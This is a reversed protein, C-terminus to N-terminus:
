RSRIERRERRRSRRRRSRSSRRQRSTKSSSPSRRRGAARRSPITQPLLYACFALAVLQARRDGEAAALPVAWVLYWPALWPTTAAAPLRRARPLRARALAERALWALGAVLALAALALALPTRCASSSSGTRCRTARRARPTARSRASRACGTSATAGPPSRASSRRRSAFGLHGVRRGAARAELARLAFFVVRSGSSSSRSRGPPGAAAEGGAGRRARAGGLVLAMMLADNHGGGAFHIALLPNWGVFAAALRGSARWGRPSRGDARADGLAALAKFLWAAADDSRARRRARRAGLRAHVRARLGLTTDRWAAGAHEYAPNEPFESPPDRYPNGTTPRSRATSGTRGPTPRSCSRRPSRCSSSRPPSRRGVAVLSAGRRAPAACLAVLYVAFAGALCRSSSGGPAGDEGARGADAPVLPAGALWAAAVCGALLVLM